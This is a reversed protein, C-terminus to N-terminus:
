PASALGIIWEFGALAGERQHREFQGVSEDWIKERGSKGPDMMQFLRDMLIFSVRRVVDNEIKATPLHVPVDVQEVNQLASNQRMWGEFDNFWGCKYESDVVGAVTDLTIPTLECTTAGTADTLPEIQIFPPYPLEEWQLWGGPKLLKEFSKVWTRPDVSPGAALLLRCHVVDYKARHEYPIPRSLDLTDLVINSPWTWRPPFQADSIDLGTVSSNMTKEAVEIAWIGTGCAVDAIQPNDIDSIAEQVKPHLLWGQRRTFAYHQASLRLNESEDRPLKYDGNYARLTELSSTMGFEDLM